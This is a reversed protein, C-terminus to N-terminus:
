PQSFQTAELRVPVVALQALVALELQSRTTLSRQESLHPTFCDAPEVVVPAGLNTLVEVVAVLSLWHTL